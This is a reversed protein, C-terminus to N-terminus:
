LPAEKPREYLWRTAMADPYHSDRIERRITGNTTPGRAVFVGEPNKRDLETTWFLIGVYPFWETSLIRTVTSANIDGAQM